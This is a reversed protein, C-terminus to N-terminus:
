QTIHNECPNRSGGNISTGINPTIVSTTAGSSFINDNVNQSQAVLPIGITFVILLWYSRM